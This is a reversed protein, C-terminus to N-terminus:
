NGDPLEMNMQNKGSHKSKYLAKDARAIIKDPVDGEHYTTAGISMTVNLSTGKYILQNSSVQKLIREGIERCKQVDVRNLTIIFEEGGFRFVKDGDRLTKRLINAIFILIKDGAIHGHTDNILKFDDIDLILLHLDDQIRGRQCVKTLYATLARRNFVKTLSDLNSSEELEKVQKTLKTIVSNARQIESNMHEQIEDFKEKISPFDIHSDNCEIFTKKQLKSINKLETNTDKYSALSEKAIEKYTNTFVERAHESSDISEDSIRSITDSADKLYHLVQERSVDKSADINALLEEYMQAVLSKLDSKQMGIGRNFFIQLYVETLCLFFKQTSTLRNM